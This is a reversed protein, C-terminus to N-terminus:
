CFTEASKMTSPKVGNAATEAESVEAQEHPATSALFGDITRDRLEYNSHHMQRAKRISRLFRKITSFQAQGIINLASIM